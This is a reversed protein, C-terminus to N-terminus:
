RRGGRRDNDDDRDKDDRDRKDDHKDKPCHPFKAVAVIDKANVKNDHNFDYRADYAHGRRTLHALIAKILAVKERITLCEQTPAVGAQWTSFADTSVDIYIDGGTLTGRGSVCPATGCNSLLVGNRFIQVDAPALGATVSADFVFRISVPPSFTVGAPNTVIQIQQGLATFGGPVGGAATETITLGFDSSAAGAPITVNTTTTDGATPVSGTGVTVGTDAEVTATAVDAM